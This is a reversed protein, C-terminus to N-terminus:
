MVGQWAGPIVPNILRIVHLSPWRVRRRRIGGTVKSAGDSVRIRQRQAAAILKHVGEDILM